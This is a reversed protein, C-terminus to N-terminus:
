RVDEPPHGDSVDLIRWSVWDLPVDGLHTRASTLIRQPEGLLALPVRITVQKPERSIQLGAAPVPREQDYVRATVPGLQIHLKPMDAFPRDTRYGFIYLSAQVAEALPRSFALSLVLNGQELRVAREELGVFMAQESDTLEEPMEGTGETLRLAAARAPPVAPFDGFLENPRVFPLLRNASYGYQTRHAQLAVRKRQLEEATLARSRWWAARQLLAPPELPGGPDFGKRAPWRPFHILYPYLEPRLEPELDWLAVRAFLYLSRHDPNYDAPHSVFVKTPRVERLMTTLDHVIEEGKYPAGPRLANDYPVARARTLMSRFPPRDGWHTEWIRLTGFDPYGLFTLQSPGLGLVAAAAEAEEHRILGIRRVADPLLVPRKRYVLFSWQNNDGYTFFVVRIPLHMAVAQQIIGGCGLVEDDPHPALVLIRDQPTLAVPPWASAPVGARPQCGALWVLAGWGALACRRRRSMVAAAGGATM